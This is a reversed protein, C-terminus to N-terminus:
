IPHVWKTGMGPVYRTSTLYVSQLYGTCVLYRDHVYRTLVKVYKTNIYYIQNMGLYFWTWYM